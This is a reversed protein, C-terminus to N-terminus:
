IKSALEDLYVTVTWLFVPFTVIPPANFTSSATVNSVVNSTVPSVVNVPFSFKGVRIALADAEVNVTTSLLWDAKEIPEAPLDSINFITDVSLVSPTDIDPANSTVPSVETVVNSEVPAVEIAVLLPSTLIAAPPPTTLIEFDPTIVVIFPFSLIAWSTVSSVM